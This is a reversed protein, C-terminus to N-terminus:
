RVRRYNEPYAAPDEDPYYDTTTRQRRSRSVPAAPNAYTEVNETTTVPRRRRPAFVAVDLVFAIAGAIMLIVGVVAIDLGSVSVDVAFTLIAGAAMLFIAAGIGM